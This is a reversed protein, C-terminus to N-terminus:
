GDKSVELSSTKINHTHIWDGENIEETAIGINEGYKTVYTDKEIKKLAFKHGFPINQNIKIVKSSIHMNTDQPIDELATACNDKSDIIIYKNRM